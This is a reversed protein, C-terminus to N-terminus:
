EREELLRLIASGGSQGGAAMEDLDECLAALWDAVDLTETKLKIGRVVRGRTAVVPGKAPVALHYVYDHIPVRISALRRGSFLGGAYEIEVQGRLYREMARALDSALERQDACYRRAAEAAVGLRILADEEELDAM